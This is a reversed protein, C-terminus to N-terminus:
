RISAHALFQEQSTAAVEAAAPLHALKTGNHVLPSLPQNGLSGALFGFTGPSVWTGARRCQCRVKTATSV